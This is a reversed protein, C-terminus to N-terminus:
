KLRSINIRKLNQIIKKKRKKGGGRLSLNKISKEFLVSSMIMERMAVKDYVKYLLHSFKKDFM